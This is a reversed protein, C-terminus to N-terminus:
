FNSRGKTAKGYEKLATEKLTGIGAFLAFGGAFEQCNSM